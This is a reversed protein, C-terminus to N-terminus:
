VTRSRGHGGSLDGPDNRAPCIQIGFACGNSGGRDATRHIHCRATLDGIDTVTRTRDYETIFARTESAAHVPKISEDISVGTRGVDRQIIGRLTGSGGHKHVTTGYQIATTDVVKIRRCDTSREM